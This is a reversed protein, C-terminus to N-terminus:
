EADGRESYRRWAASAGSMLKMQSAFRQCGRCALLHLRVPLFAWWGPPQHEGRVLRFSVERCHLRFGM